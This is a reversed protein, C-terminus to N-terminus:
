DVLGNVGLCGNVGLDWVTNWPDRVGQAGKLTGEAKLRLRWM